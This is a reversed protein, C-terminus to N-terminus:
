AGTSLQKRLEEIVQQQAKLAQKQEALAQDKETLAREQEALAQGQESITQDKRAIARELDQLEELIDDEADMAQQVEPEEVARHLRRLIRRYKRPMDEENIRLIHANEDIAYHQDFIRLLQEVDTKHDPRLCPIQIVYSDHTLSEIFEEHERLIEGTTVDVYQRAVKIVPATVHELQYGLFYVSVIPRAHRTTKGDDAMVYVNTKKQYQDGLYRRFRMIDAAFKAKQIEILVQKETGDPKRITAAFDLRYVTWSRQPLPITYEQPLVTLAVIEEALITALILDASETDEMLYKFVVDYIPNAIQM